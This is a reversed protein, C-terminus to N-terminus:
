LASLTPTGESYEGVKSTKVDDHHRWSRIDAMNLIRHRLSGKVPWTGSANLVRRIVNAVVRDQLSSEM